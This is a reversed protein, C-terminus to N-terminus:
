RGHFDPSRKAGFAVLGEQLDDSRNCAAVMAVLPPSLENDVRAARLLAKATRVSLPASSAIAGVLDQVLDGLEDDDVVRSVLGVRAAEEGDIPRGTFLLEAAVAEGVARVLPVVDRYAVGLRAAPIGLSSTRSCVRVDAELALSLGGGLCHGRISAIVPKPFERIALCADRFCREFRELAPASAGGFASLDIGSAFARYGAGEIVAVRVEPDSGLEALARRLGDLMVATLANRRPANSLVLRVAHGHRHVSVTGHEEDSSM